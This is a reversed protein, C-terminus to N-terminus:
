LNHNSVQYHVEDWQPQQKRKTDDLRQPHLRSQQVRGIDGHLRSRSWGANVIYEDESDASDDGNVKFQDYVAVYTKGDFDTMTIRLSYSGESTFKHLKELGLWM